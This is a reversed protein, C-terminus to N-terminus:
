IQNKKLTNIHKLTLTELFNNLMLLFSLFLFIITIHPPRHLGLCNARFVWGDGIKNNHQKRYACKDKGTAGTM